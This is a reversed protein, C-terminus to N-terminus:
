FGAAFIFSLMQHVSRAKYELTDTGDKGQRYVLGLGTERGPEGFGVFVGLAALPMNDLNASTQGAYSLGRYGLMYKTGIGQMDIAFAAQFRFYDDHVARGTQTKEGGESARVSTMDFEVRGSPMDYYASLGFQPAAFAVGDGNEEGSPYTTKKYKRVDQNGQHSYISVGWDSDRRVLGFRNSAVQVPRYDFKVSGIPSFTHDVQALFFDIQRGVVLELGKPTRYTFDFAMQSFTSSSDQTITSAVGKEQGRSVMNKLYLQGRVNVLDTAPMGASVEFVSGYRRELYTTETPRFTTEGESLYLDLWSKMTMHNHQHVLGLQGLTLPDGLVNAQVMCSYFWGVIMM